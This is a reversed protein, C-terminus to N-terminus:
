YLAYANDAEPATRHETARCDQECSVGVPRKPEHPVRKTLM